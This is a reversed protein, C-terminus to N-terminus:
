SKSVFAVGNLRKIRETIHIHAIEPHRCLLVFPSHALRQQQPQMQQIFLEQVMMMKMRKM